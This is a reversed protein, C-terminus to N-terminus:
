RGNRQAGIYVSLATARVDESTYDLQVGKSKAYARTEEWADFSTTLCNLLQDKVTTRVADPATPQPPRQEYRENPPPPPPPPEPQRYRQQQQPRPALLRPGGNEYGWRDGNQQSHGNEYQQQVPPPPPAPPHQHYQTQPDYADGVRQARFYYQSGRKFKLLEITEGVTPQARTIADRGDAPLYIFCPQRDFMVNYRYETGNFKSSCETGFVTEMEMLLPVDVVPQIKQRQV